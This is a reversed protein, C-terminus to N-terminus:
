DGTGPKSTPLTFFFAAGAGSGEAWVTGGNRDLMRRVRALGAGQGEFDGSGDLRQFLGFLRDAYQMDFGIGNDRVSYRSERGDSEGAVTIVGPERGRTFKVANGLLERIVDHVMERDGWARPLSGIEFVLSREPATATLETRVAAFLANMDLKVPAPERRGVRALALLAEIGANMKGANTRVVQLYHRAQDDLRDAYDELLIESFGDIARLPARLDHSIAYSLQDLEREMEGAHREAAQLRERLHRFEDDRGTEGPAAQGASPTKGATTTM